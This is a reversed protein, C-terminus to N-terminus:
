GRKLFGKKLSKIKGLRLGSLSFATANNLDFLNNAFFPGLLREGSNVSASGMISNFAPFWVVRQKRTGFKKSAKMEGVVWARQSWAGTKERFRISPHQHGFCLTEASLVEPSPWAHGHCLGIKEKGDRLVIGQPQEVVMKGFGYSELQSDHNGKIVVVRPCDLADLFEGVLRKEREEFGYVDHKFDGLVVLESAGFESLLSNIERSLRKHQLPLMIKKERAAFEIGLHLDSVVLRKGIVAAAQGYAFKM